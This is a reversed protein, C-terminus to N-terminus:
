FDSDEECADRLWKYYKIATPFDKFNEAVISLLHNGWKIIDLDFAASGLQVFKEM